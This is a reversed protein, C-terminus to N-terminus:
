PEPIPCADTATTRITVVVRGNDVGSPLGATPAATADSCASYSGGGSAGQSACEASSDAFGAAGGGWGGGGPGNAVVSTEPMYGPGGKGSRQAENWPFGWGGKAPPGGEQMQLDGGAGGFGDSGRPNPLTKVCGGKSGVGGHGGQGGYPGGGTKGGGNAGPWGDNHNNGERSAESQGGSGGGIAIIGSESVTAFADATAAGSSGGGPSIGAARGTCGVALALLSPTTVIAQAYGGDGSSAAGYTQVLTAATGPPLGLYDSVVGGGAAQPGCETATAAGSPETLRVVTDIDRGVLLIGAARVIVGTPHVVAAAAVSQIDGAGDPGFYALRTSDLGTDTIAVTGDCWGLSASVVDPPRGGTNAPNMAAAAAFVPAALGHATTQFVDIRELDPAVSALIEIDMAAEGTPPHPQGSEVIHLNTPPMTTGFCAAYTDLAAQDYTSVTILAASRGAGTFGEDHLHDIGYASLVEGPDHAEVAIADECPIDGSQDSGDSEVILLDAVQPERVPEEFGIIEQADALGSPVTPPRVAEILQTGTSVEFVAFETDFLDSAQEVTMPASVLARTPDISADVGADALASLIPDVVGDTAGFRQGVEEATLYGGYAPDAPNSVSLAFQTLGADDRPLGIGLLLVADPDASAVASGVPEVSDVSDDSACAMSTALLVAVSCTLAARMM